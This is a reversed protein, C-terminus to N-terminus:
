MTYKGEKRRDINDKTTCARPDRSNTTQIQSKKYLEMSINHEVGYHMILLHGNTKEQNCDVFPCIFPPTKPLEDSLQLLFSYTITKHSM